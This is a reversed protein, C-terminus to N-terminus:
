GTSFTLANSGPQHQHPEQLDALSVGIAGSPHLGLDILECGQTTQSRPLRDTRGGRGACEGEGDRPECEHPYGDRHRRHSQAPGERLHARPGDARNRRLSDPRPRPNAPALGSSPSRMLSATHMCEAKLREFSWVEGNIPYTVRRSNPMRVYRPGTGHGRKVELTNPRIGLLEAAEANTLRRDKLTYGFLEALQELNTDSM